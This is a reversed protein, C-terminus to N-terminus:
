RMWGGLQEEMVEQQRQQDKQPHKHHTRQYGDQRCVPQLQQPGCLRLAWGGKTRVTLLPLRRRAETVSRRDTREQQEMAGSGRLPWTASSSRRVQWSATPPTTTGPAGATTRLPAQSPVKRQM